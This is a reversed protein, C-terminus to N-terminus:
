PSTRCPDGLVEDLASVIALDKKATPPSSSKAAWACQSSASERFGSHHDRVSVLGPAVIIRKDLVMLEVASEIAIRSLTLVGAPLQEFALNRIPM